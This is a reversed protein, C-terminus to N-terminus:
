DVGIPELALLKRELVVVRAQLAVILEAMEGQYKTLTEVQTTLREVLSLLDPAATM